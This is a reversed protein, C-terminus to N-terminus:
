DEWINEALRRKAKPNFKLYYMTTDVRAHGMMDKLEVLDFPTELKKSSRIAYSHRFVHAHMQHGKSGVTSIGAIEASKKLVQDVRQRSMPFVYDNEGIGASHIYKRVKELVHAKVPLLSKTPEKQKLITFNVLNNEYDIDAPTLCRVVESVRRGTFILFYFLLRFTYNKTAKLISELQERSLYSKPDTMPTGTTRAGNWPM